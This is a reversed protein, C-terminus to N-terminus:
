GKGGLIENYLSIGAKLISWALLIILGIMILAGIAFVPQPIDFGTCFDLNGLNMEYIQVGQIVCNTTHPHLLQDYISTIAGLLSSTASNANQSASNGSSQSDDSRNQINDRDQQDQQRQADLLALQRNLISNQQQLLALERDDSFDVTAYGSEYYIYYSKNNFSYMFVSNPVGYSINFGGTFGRPVRVVFDFYVTVTLNKLNAHYVPVDDWNWFTFAVSVDQSELNFINTNNDDTVGLIEINRSGYPDCYPVESSTQNIAMCVINFQGSFTAYEGTTTVSSTKFHGGNIGTNAGQYLTFTPNNRVVNNQIALINDWYHEGTFYPANWYTNWAGAKPGYNFGAQGFTLSSSAYSRSTFGFFSFLVSLILSSVVGVLLSPRFIGNKKKWIM